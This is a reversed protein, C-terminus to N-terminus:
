RKRYVFVDQHGDLQMARYSLPELDPAAEAVLAEVAARSFWTLGYDATYYPYRAYYYGERALAALVAPKDLWFQEYREAQEASGQGHITFVVIGGPKLARAVDALNAHVVARPLHTYVSLLYVLDYTDSPKPHAREMVPVQTAGFESATFRAGEEIMDCVAIREGPLRRSLRRVIRGYGCGIELARGIADWDRGAEKVAAELIDVFQEAGAMYSAVKDPATSTLMFDNYHARGIGAVPRAGLRSGLAFRAKRGVGYLAPSRKIVDLMAPPILRTSLSPM